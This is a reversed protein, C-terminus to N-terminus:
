LIEETIETSTAANVTKTIPQSFGPSVPSVTLDRHVYWAVRGANDNQRRFELGGVIRSEHRKIWWGLRGRNIEGRAEAVERFADLLEDELNLQRLVERVQMPRHGFRDHWLSLARGLADSDPDSTVQELLSTAPDPLGLWILPHRCFDAWVDGYTAIPSVDARPCGALRWAQIITLAAAVYQGRNRKVTGVPDNQYKLTAPTQCRPDINITVVRRLMDRVPGINNGSALFLTRTSVAVTKSEGLIRDSVREETLARNMAGHPLLDTTMDDFEVVAPGTMLVALLAKTAEAADAPYSMPSAPGPGAFCTILKCLLSKGSAIVPAKALFMPAHPLSPRVTATLIGALAAARDHDHAFRFETLLNTLQVLAAVADTKTPNAKVPFERPDFVGFLQAQEDYGSQMVLTGDERYYPQRALGALPKLHRYDDTDYLVAVHRAPPDCRVWDEARGDYKQWSACRALEATLAPASTPKIRPDRTEPPTFVSVIAGGAQYHHGAAALEAEARDVVRHIEGAVIRITAQMRASAAPVALFELLDRVHRNAGHAHLCKFGGLPFGDGPEFYATGDDDGSSHENLWPCTLDHRGAGLPTKYLGRSKLAAIVPNTDPRPSFVDDQNDTASPQARKAKKEAKPRGAPLLDLELRLVIDEPTYRTDPRWEVMRCNFPPDLKGNIGVPLRANRALPGNAGSDCLGAQILSNLLREAQNRDTLPADFLIGGQFNGPSTEILYSLEFAGLRDISAKTGLDDLLLGHLGAFHTKRRAVKGDDGPYYSALSFYTNHSTDSLDCPWTRAPWGKAQNPNGTLQTVLVFAGDPKDRFVADIFEANTIKVTEGTKVPNEPGSVLDTMKADVISEVSEVVSEEPVFLCKPSDVHFNTPSPPKSARNSPPSRRPKSDVLAADAVVAPPAGIASAPAKIKHAATM